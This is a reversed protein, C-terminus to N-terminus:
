KYAPVRYWVMLTLYTYPEKSVNCGSRTHFDRYVIEIDPHETLWANVEEDLEAPVVGRMCYLKEFTKLRLM